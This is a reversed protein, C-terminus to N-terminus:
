ATASSCPARSPRAGRWCAATRTAGTARTSASSGSSPARPPTTPPTLARSVVGGRQDSVHEGFAFLRAFSLLGKPYLRYGAEAAVMRFGVQPIFGLDARFDEGLDDYRAFLDYRQASRTVGAKLARGTVSTSEFDQAALDSSDSGPLIVSGGGRDQALLLTHSIGRASGTIRGGFRPSTISRSYFAQLPTELLDVGELFFPRKEPYFLAFRNNVAIQAVDAEVQSFDPNLTLDVATSSFPTWKFDLGVEPDFGDGSLAGGPRAARAVDQGAAYPAVVLHRSRPLNKLGVLDRLHCVYCNSGRPLPSSYIAYRRDRPYNRWVMLGWAQDAQPRYRLSSFPIRFEASWGTEPGDHAIRAATDYYFDPSFDENGSTGGARRAGVGGLSRALEAGNWTQGHYHALMMWFRRLM